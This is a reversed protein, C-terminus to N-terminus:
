KKTLLTVYNLFVKNYHKDTSPHINDDYFDIRLTDISNLQDCNPMLSAVSEHSVLVFPLAEAVAVSDTLDIPLIKRKAYYVMEIRFDEDSSRYFPVGRLNEMQTTAAISHSQPNGFFGKITPLLMLEAAAFFAAVGAVFRIPKWQWVSRIMWVGIALALISFIVLLWTPIEVIRAVYFCLAFPVAIVIVSMLYGNFRYIFRTVRSPSTSDVFHMIITAVAMSSPALLPLLYRMKKEPMLSLLVLCALTWVIALMYESPRSIRKRWYPVALAALMLIMWVGMEAFFRWYYFWPRVNHDSWAGSEKNIVAMTEEPHELILYIYWWSGVVVMVLFLLAVGGWKGRMSVPKQVFYSILFPLLLAYFSVPGKSLFSLGMMLGSLAMFGLMRKGDAHVARWLFYIGGMMFAHCYIDWTASRGMLIFNYCTMMVVVAVLAYDDRRTEFRLLLFTFVLWVVAMVGPALRQVALNDPCASEICAATWTPLPPKELRLEGNMTPVLWNDDSVIEAATIVNRLEMIDTPLAGSNVFFTIFGLAIVAVYAWRSQRAIPEEYPTKDKM